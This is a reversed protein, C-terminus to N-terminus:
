HSSNLRTSKRDALEDAMMDFTRPRREELIQLEQQDAGQPQEVRDIAAHRNGGPATGRRVSTADRVAFFARSAPRKQQAYSFLSASGRHDAGRGILRTKWDTM